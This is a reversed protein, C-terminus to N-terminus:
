ASLAVSGPIFELKIPWKARIYVKYQICLALM